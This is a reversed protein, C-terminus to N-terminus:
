LTDLEQDIQQFEVNMDGQLDIGQLEQNIVELTDPLGPLTPLDTLYIQKSTLWLWLALAIVVGVALFIHIINAKQGSDGMGYSMNNGGGARMNNIQKQDTNDMNDM